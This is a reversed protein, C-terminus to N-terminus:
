SPKSEPKTEPPKTTGKTGTGSSSSGSCGIATLLGFVLTLCLLKKV